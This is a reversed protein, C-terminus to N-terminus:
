GLWDRLRPFKACVPLNSCWDELGWVRGAKLSSLLLLAFVYVIHEDVLYSHEGVLPFNLVPLYYLLMMAAGLVAGVRIFVGLILAAGILTLGWENLFNTFPLIQPSALWQYFGGFTQAGKLYGAASWAPDFVKTIGAYLFLWGMSVRLLFLFLKQYRTM